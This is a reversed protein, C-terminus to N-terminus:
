YSESWWGSRCDYPALGNAIISKGTPDTFAFRKLVGRGPEAENRVSVASMDVVRSRQTVKGQADATETVVLIQPHDFKCTWAAVADGGSACANSSPASIQLKTIRELPGITGLASLADTLALSAFEPGAYIQLETNEYNDSTIVQQLRLGLDGLACEIRSTDITTAAMSM